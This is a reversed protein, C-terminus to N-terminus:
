SQLCLSPLLWLSPLYIWTGSAQRVDAGRAKHFGATDLGEEPRRRDHQARHSGEREELAGHDGAQLCDKLSATCIILM